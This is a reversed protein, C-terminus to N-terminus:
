KREPNRLWERILDQIKDKMHVGRLDCAAKFSQRLAKPFGSFFLVCKTADGNELKKGTM